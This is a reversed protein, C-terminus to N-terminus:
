ELDEPAVAKAAEEEDEDNDCYINEAMQWVQVVNNESVSAVVWDDNGNWSFESIRDTHGAHMFQTCLHCCLALAFAM